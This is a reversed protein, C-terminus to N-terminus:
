QSTIGKSVKGFTHLKLLSNRSMWTCLYKTSLTFAHPNIAEGCYSTSVGQALNIPIQRLIRDMEQTKRSTHSCSANARTHRPTRTKGACVATCLRLASFWKHGWTPPSPDTNFTLWTNNWGMPALILETVLIVPRSASGLTRRRPFPNKTAVADLHSRAVSLSRCLSQEPWPPTALSDETSDQPLPPTTSYWM